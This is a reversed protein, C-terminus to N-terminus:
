AESVQGVNGDIYDASAYERIATIIDDDDADGMMEAAMDSATDEDSASVTIRRRITVQYTEEVDVDFDREGGEILVTVGNDSLVSNLKAIFKQADSCWGRREAEAWFQEGVIRALKYLEDTRQDYRQCLQAYMLTLKGVTLESELLNHGYPYRSVQIWQEESVRPDIRMNLALDSGTDAPKIYNNMWDIITENSM